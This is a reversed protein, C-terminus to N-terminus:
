KLFLVRRNRLLSVPKRILLRLFYVGSPLEGGSESKGDWLLKYQGARQEKNVLTRVKAGLVDFVELKVISDAQLLYEITTSSNFPNPYIGVLEYGTTKHNESDRHNIPAGPSYEHAGIDPAGYYLPNGFYDRGGNKFMRKGTDICSSGERLQYGDVSNIGMDGSGPAALLPDATIKTADNPENAPHNGFYCNYDIYRNYGSKFQYKATKSLNYILNNHFYYTRNGSGGNNRESIITPSTSEGIYVTNNYIYVSTNPYNITFINGKDNQSINYRCIVSNDKADTCSWFLGHNNDHSYSYQFICEPSSLDADYLCGDYDTTRNLYGENYQFITGLCSRSFITNGTGARFATDWCVNYEVRCSADAMRMIIANKSVDNISNNRIIYNTYKREHWKETGPYDKTNAENSIGSGDLTVLTCNEVLIDNFRTPVTDDLVAFNIGGTRKADTSNGVIGKIHHIYLSKLHIHNITGANGATVRVGIRDGGVNANNTIELNNIEWWSQNHLYVVPKLMGDGDIVPPADNGYKDIVIPHGEAGSGHPSLQGNWIGNSKFLIRDGSEFRTSNVKLLSRWAQNESMGTQMDNGNVADIYYTATYIQRGPWLMASAIICATEFVAFINKKFM